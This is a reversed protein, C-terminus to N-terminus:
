ESKAFINGILQPKRSPRLLPLFDHSGARNILQWYWVSGDSSLAMLGGFDSVIGRWDSRESIQIPEFGAPQLSPQYDSFDWLWLTGDAKLTVAPGYGGALAVWNTESGIKSNLTVLEFRNKQM